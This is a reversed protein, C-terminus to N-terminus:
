VEKLQITISYFNTRKDYSEVYNGTWQVEYYESARNILDPYYYFNRHLDYETKLTNRDSESVNSLKLVEEFKSYVTFTVLDGNLLRFDGGLYDDKRDAISLFNGGSEIITTVKGSDEYFGFYGILTSM